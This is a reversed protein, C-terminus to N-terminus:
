GGGAAVSSLDPGLAQTKRMRRFENPPMGYVASFDRVFNTVNSYGVKEAIQKVLFDEAELLDAARQMRVGRVFTRFSVGAHRRFLHGLTRSSVRLRSRFDNITIHPRSFEAGVFKM